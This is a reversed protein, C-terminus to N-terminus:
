NEKSQKSLYDDIIKIGKESSIGRIFNTMMTSFLERFTFPPTEMYSARIYIYTSEEVLFASVDVNLNERIYGQEIGKKLIKKLFKNSRQADEKIKEYVKPYYKYIDEYFKVSYFPAKQHLRMMEIFFEIINECKDFLEISKADREDRLNILFALLIEEKDTFNEYITRKSIGLSTALEDMSVAKVGYQAFLRGAQSVIREKIEMVHNRFFRVFICYFVRFSM